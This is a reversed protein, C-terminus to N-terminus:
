LFRGEAGNPYIAVPRGASVEYTVGVKTLLLAFTVSGLLAGTKDFTAVEVVANPTGNASVGCYLVAGQNTDGTAATRANIEAIKQAVEQNTAECVAAREAALPDTPKIASCAVSSAVFLSLIFSLATKMPRGYGGFKAPLYVM